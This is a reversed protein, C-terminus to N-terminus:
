FHKELAINFHNALRRVNDLYLKTSDSVATPEVQKYPFENTTVPGKMAIAKKYHDKILLEGKERRNTLMLFAIYEYQSTFLKNREYVETFRILDDLSKYTNFLPKLYSELDAKVNLAVNKTDIRSSLEYWHVRKHSYLGLPNQIFCDDTTPFDIIMEKDRGINYIDSNFFGFNFAFYLKDFSTSLLNKQVTFTQTIENSIRSFNQGKKRFKLGKFFPNIIEKFIADFDSNLKETTM